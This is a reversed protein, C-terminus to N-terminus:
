NVIRPLILGILDTAEKHLETSHTLLKDEMLYFGKMLYHLHEMTLNESQMHRIDRLLQVYLKADREQGHM